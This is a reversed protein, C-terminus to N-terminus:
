TASNSNKRERKTAIIIQLPAPLLSQFPQETMASISHPPNKKCLRHPQAVYTTDGVTLLASLLKKEGNKTHILNCLRTTDYRRRRGRRRGIRLLEYM